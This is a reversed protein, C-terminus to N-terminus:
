VNVTSSVGLAVCHVLGSAVAYLWFKPSGAGAHGAGRRAQTLLLRHGNTTVKHQHGQFIGFRGCPFFNTGARAEDLQPFYLAFSLISYVRIM